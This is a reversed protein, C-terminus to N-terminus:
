HGGGGHRHDGLGRGEELAEFRNRTAVIAGPKRMGRTQVQQFGDCATTWPNVMQVEAVRGISGLCADEDDDEFEDDDEHKHEHEVARVGGSGKHHGKTGEPCDRQFHAGGCTWCTGYQPGKGRGKSRGDDSGGKGKGKGKSSQTEAWQGQMQGKGKGKGKLQDVRDKGKGKATPCERAFHGVGGCRHCYNTGVADVGYEWEGNEREAGYEELTEGIDMPKPTAYDIHVNAMMKIKGKLEDYDLKKSGLGQARTLQVTEPLMELLLAAKLGVTPEEGFEKKLVALKNGM